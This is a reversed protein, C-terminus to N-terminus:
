NPLPFTSVNHYYGQEDRPYKELWQWDLKTQMDYYMNERSMWFDTYPFIDVITSQFSQTYQNYDTVPLIYPEGIPMMNRVPTIQRIDKVWWEIPTDEVRMAVLIGRMYTTSYYAYAHKEIQRVYNLKVAVQVHPHHINRTMKLIQNILIDEM